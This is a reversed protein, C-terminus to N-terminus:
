NIFHLIILPIIRYINLIDLFFLILCILFIAQIQGFSFVGVSERTMVRHLALLGMMLLQISYWYLPNLMYLSWLRAPLIPTYGDPYQLWVLGALLLFAAHMVAGSVAFLTLWKGASPSHWTMFKRESNEPQPVREVANLFFFISGLFAYGHALYLNPMETIGMVNPLIHASFLGFVLWVVVSFWLWQFQQRRMTQICFIAIFATIALHNLPM